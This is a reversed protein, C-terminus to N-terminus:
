TYDYHCTVFDLVQNRDIKSNNANLNNNDCVALIAMCHDTALELFNETLTGVTEEVTNMVNPTLVSELEKKM